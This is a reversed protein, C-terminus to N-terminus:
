ALVDGPKGQTGEFISFVKNRPPETLKFILKREFYFCFSLILSHSLPTGRPSSIKVVRMIRWCQRVIMVVVVHPFRISHNHTSLLWLEDSDLNKRQLLVHPFCM